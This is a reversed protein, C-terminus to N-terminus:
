AGPREKKQQSELWDVIDTFREDGVTVLPEVLKWLEDDVPKARAGRKIEEHRRITYACLDCLQLALSKHSQIFFGKEIIQTLRVPGEAGRLLQIAKDVDRAVAHNEDSIFMGLPKGPLRKLHSNVVQSVLGLAAVHPDIFVGAGFRGTIWRLYREKVIARFVLKLDQQAAIALWDRMFALRVATTVNRVYQSKPNILESAHVEFDDPQPQAWHKAIAASLSTELPQWKSEPVILGCLVFVPQQPNNLNRGSNGSEDLYILHV